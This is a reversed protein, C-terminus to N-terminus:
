SLDAKQRLTIATQLESTLQLNEKKICLIPKGSIVMSQMVIAIRGM